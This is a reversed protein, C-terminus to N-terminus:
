MQGKGLLVVLLCRFLKLVLYKRGQLLYKFLICIPARSISRRFYIQLYCSLCKQTGSAEGIAGDRDVVLGRFSRGGIEVCLYVYFFSEYSM